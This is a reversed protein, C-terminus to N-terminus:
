SVRGFYLLAGAAALLFIIFLLLAFRLLRPFKKKTKGQIVRLDKTYAVGKERIEKKEDLIDIVRSVTMLLSAGCNPCRTQLHKADVDLSMGCEKCILNVIRIM